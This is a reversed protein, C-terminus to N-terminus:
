AASSKSILPHGRRCSTVSGPPVKVCGQVGSDHARRLAKLFSAARPFVPVDFHYEHSLSANEEGIEKKTKLFHPCPSLHKETTGKAHLLACFISLACFLSLSLSLSLSLTLTNSSVAFRSECEERGVKLVKEKGAAKAM